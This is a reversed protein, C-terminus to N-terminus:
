YAKGIYTETRNSGYDADEEVRHRTRTGEKYGKNCRIAVTNGGIGHREMIDLSTTINRQTVVAIESQCWSELKMVRKHQREGHYEYGSGSIRSAEHHVQLVVETTYRGYDRFEEVVRFRKNHRDDHRGSRLRWSM